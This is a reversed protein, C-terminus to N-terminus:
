FCKSGIRYVKIFQPYFLSSKLCSSKIDHLATLIFHYLIYHICIYIYMCVYVYQRYQLFVFCHPAPIWPTWPTWAFGEGFDSSCPSIYRPLNYRGWQSRVAFESSIMTLLPFWGWIAKIWTLSNSYNVWIYIYVPPHNPVNKVKGEIPFLLGLQSINKPPTSVVLWYIYVYIYIIM